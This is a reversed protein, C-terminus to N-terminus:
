WLCLVMIYSILLMLVGTILFRIGAGKQNRGRIDKRFRLWATFFNLLAALFFLVPFGLMNAEGGWFSFVFSAACGICLLVTILNCTRAFAGPDDM